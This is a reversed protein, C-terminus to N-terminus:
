ATQRCPPDGTSDLDTGEALALAEAYGVLEDARDALEELTRRLMAQEELLRSALIAIRLRNHPKEARQTLYTALERDTMVFACIDCIDCVGEPLEAPLAADLGAETLWRLVEGFGLTRILQLLPLTLFERHIQLLSQRRANGLQFPHNRAEILNICCPAISGDYRVVMGQTMCPKAWPEYTQRRQPGLAAARGVERLRQSRVEVGELSLLFELIRQDEATPPDSHTFRLVSQRGLEAVASAARRINALPVLEQHYTDVSIDWCDIAPLSRVVERARTERTAWYASTVLGCAMGADAAATSLVDVQRRALLPEGGTFSVSRIGCEALEPMQRAYCAAASLPLTTGRRQPGANVICHACALPCALTLHFTLHRAALNQLATLEDLSLQARPDLDPFRSRLSM